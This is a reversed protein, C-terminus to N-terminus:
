NIIVCNPIFPMPEDKEDYEVASELYHEDLDEVIFESPLCYVKHYSNGENDSSYIIPLKGCGKDKLEQLVLILENVTIM